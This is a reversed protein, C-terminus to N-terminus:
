SIAELIEQVPLAVQSIEAGTACETAWSACMAQWLTDGGIILRDAAEKIWDHHNERAMARNLSDITESPARGIRQSIQPWERSSLAEFVVREPADDGPLLICGPAAAQDADLYVLSKRPFRGQSAMIGLAMGVQASGFPIIKVRQLLEKHFKVLAEGVFVAARQDEVYIDCEPHFEEDMKTMAFDPSVGTVVMRTGSEKMLYIRGEVPLEELVYPSHTTLIFQIEKERAIRALDRILRRQARPHLSTEVEDILVLSHQQFENALLEAMTIHGTGQHFGSYRGEEEVIIPVNRTKSVSTTSMGVQAYSKGMIESFRSIKSAEFPAHEGEIVGTKLMKLYGMRAGIPQIRRLDVNHVKREPREPNGRWRDSPKRITKTSVSLGERFSFKITAKEIREFPTDPFFDSGYMEEKKIRYKYVSAAAQLVTSKGSGNEGVLAVIPFQFDVRQGTWGRIGAIELSELRKPWATGTRWKNQLKRMESSLAM